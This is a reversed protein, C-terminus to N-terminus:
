SYEYRQKNWTFLAMFNDYGSIKFFLAEQALTFCHFILIIISLLLRLVGRDESDVTFYLNLLNEKFKDIPLDVESSIEVISHVYHVLFDVALNIIKKMIMLSEKSQNM